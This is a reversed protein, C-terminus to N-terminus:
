RGRPDTPVVPVYHLEFSTHPLVRNPAQAQIAHKFSDFLNVRLVHQRVNVFSSDVTLM